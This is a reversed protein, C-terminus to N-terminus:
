IFGCQSQSQAITAGLRRAKRAPSAQAAEERLPACACLPAALAFSTRKMRMAISSARCASKGKPATITRSPETIARPRL